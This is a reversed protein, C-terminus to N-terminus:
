TWVHQSQSITLITIHLRASETPDRLTQSPDTIGPSATKILILDPDQADSNLKTVIQM